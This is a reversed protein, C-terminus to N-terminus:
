CEFTKLGNLKKMKENRQVRRKKKKGAPHGLETGALRFFSEYEMPKKHTESAIRLRLPTVTRKKM